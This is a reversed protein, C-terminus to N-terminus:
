YLPDLDRLAGQVLTASLGNKLFAYLDKRQQDTAGDPLIVEVNARLTYAVKQVGDVTQGVPYTVTFKARNSSGAGKAFTTSVGLRPFLSAIGLRRDSFVSLSPSVAEPSFTVAVPTAQGDNVVISAAAAM